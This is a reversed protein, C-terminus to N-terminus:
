VIYLVSRLFYGIGTLVKCTFVVTSVILTKLVDIYRKERSLKRILGLIISIESLSSNGQPKSLKSNLSILYDSIVISCRKKIYEALTSREYHYILGNHAYIIKKNQANLDLSMMFDERRNGVGSVFKMRKIQPLFLLLNKTDIVFLQKGNLNKNIWNDWLNQELRSCINAKPLYVVKGVIAASNPNSRSCEVMSDIWGSPSECDDDLFLCYELNSNQCFKIALNRALAINSSNSVVVSVKKYNNKFYLIVKRVPEISQNDVILLRDGNHLQKLISKLSRRLFEDRHHAIVAVLVSPRKNKIM